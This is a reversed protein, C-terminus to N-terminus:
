ALRGDFVLERLKLSVKEVELAKKDCPVAARWLMSFREDDPEFLVTELNFAPQQTASGLRVALDFRCRPLVFSLRGHPSLHALEVPEGGQLYGDAVLDPNAANFFRPDFDAPLYPAREREWAADYSGAYGRRPQWHPAIFGYGAPREADVPDLLNPALTGKLEQRRKEARFGRGVPNAEEAKIKGKEADIVHVGGFAREYVLPMTTFPRAADLTAGLLRGSYVRDGVVRVRKRLRGVTLRTDMMTVPRGNPAHASGVLVVDTASKTPHLEAVYKLSSAGPEGWCEDALHLPQQPDAVTPAEGLVFTAKLVIYLTDVGQIDPILSLTAVFPTENALQLMEAADL